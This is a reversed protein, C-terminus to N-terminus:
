EARELPCAASAGALIMISEPLYAEWYVVYSIRIQLLNYSSRYSGIIGLVFRQILLPVRM